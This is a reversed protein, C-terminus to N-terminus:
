EDNLNPLVVLWKCLKVDGFTARVLLLFLKDLFDRLSENVRESGLWVRNPDRHLVHSFLLPTDASLRESLSASQRCAPVPAAPAAIHTQTSRVM